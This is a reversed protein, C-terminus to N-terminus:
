RDPGHRLRRALVYSGFAVNVFGAALILGGSFPELPQHTILYVFIWVGVLLSTVGMATFPFRM